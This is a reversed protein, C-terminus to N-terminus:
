NEKNEMLNTSQMQKRGKWGSKVQNSEQFHVNFSLHVPKFGHETHQEESDQGSLTVTQLKAAREQELTLNQTVSTTYNDFQPRSINM